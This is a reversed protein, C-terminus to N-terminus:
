AAWVACHHAAAFETGSRTGAGAPDTTLTRISGDGSWAPWPPDAGDGPDSGDPGAPDGTAAFRAWARVMRESLARQDPTLVPQGPVLDFLYALDAGHTAGGALDPPLADFTAPAAPDAFEYAFVPARAGLGRYTALGTCAYARDTIVDAWM